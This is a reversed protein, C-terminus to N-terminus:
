LVGLMVFKVIFFCLIFAISYLVASFLISSGAIHDDIWKSPFFHYLIYVFIIGVLQWIININSPFITVNFIIKLLLIIILPSFVYRFIDNMKYKREWMAVIKESEREKKEIELRLEEEQKQVQEELARYQKENEIQQKRRKEKEEERKKEVVKLYEQGEPTNLYNKLCNEHAIFDVYKKVNGKRGCFHCPQADLWEQHEREREEQEERQKEEQEEREREEDIEDNDDNDMLDEQSQINDNETIQRSSKKSEQITEREPAKYLCNWRHITRDLCTGNSSYPEKKSHLILGCYACQYKSEGYEGMERWNHIRGKPCGSIPPSSDAHVVARCNACIYNKM